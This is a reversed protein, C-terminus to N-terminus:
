FVFVNDFQALTEGKEEVMGVFVVDPNIEPAQQERIAASMHLEFEEFSMEHVKKMAFEETTKHRDAPHERRCPLDM